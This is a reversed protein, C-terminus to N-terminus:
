RSKISNAKSEPATDGVVLIRSATHKVLARGRVGFGNNVM